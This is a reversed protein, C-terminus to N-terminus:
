PLKLTKPPNFLGSRPKNQQLYKGTQRVDRKLRELKYYQVCDLQQRKRPYNKLSNWGGNLRRQAKKYILRPKPTPPLPKDISSGM